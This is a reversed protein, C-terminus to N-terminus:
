SFLPMKSHSQNGTNINAIGGCLDTDTLARVVPTYGEEGAGQAGGRSGLARQGVHVADLRRQLRSDTCGSAIHALKGDDADVLRRGDDAVRRHFGNGLGDNGLGGHDAVVRGRRCARSRRHTLDNGKIPQVGRVLAHRVQDGHRSRNGVLRNRVLDVADGLLAVDAADDHLCVLRYQDLVSKLSLDGDDILNAM